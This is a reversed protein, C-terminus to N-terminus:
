WPGFMDVTESFDIVEGVITFPEVQGLIGFQFMDSEFMSREADIYMSLCKSVM